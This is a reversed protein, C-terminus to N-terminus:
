PSRPCTKSNIQSKKKEKAKPKGLNDAFQVIATENLNATITIIDVINIDKEEKNVKQIEIKETEQNSKSILTLDIEVKVREGHQSPLYEQKGVKYAKLQASTVEEKEKEEYKDLENLFQNLDDQWLISPTKAKLKALEDVKTKQQKLIEDKKEMTLNWIPMSLLYDFEHKDSSQEKGNEDENAAPSMDENNSGQEKVVRQKWKAIPDPDYKKDRLINILEAKKLNEVKIKGEIKESIFRAINVLKLIEAGLMSEMFEKRKVYLNTRVKHFELLIENVSDYGRLCGNHDFLVMSNLSLPKQLKFFKHSEVWKSEKYIFIKNISKNKDM